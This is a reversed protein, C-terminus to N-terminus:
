GGSSLGVRHAAAHCFVSEALVLSVLNRYSAGTAAHALHQNLRNALTVVARKAARQFQGGTGGNAKVGGGERPVGAANQNMRVQPLAQFVGFHQNVEAARFSGHRM